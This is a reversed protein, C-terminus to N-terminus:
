NEEELQEPFSVLTKFFFFDVRLNVRSRERKWLARM